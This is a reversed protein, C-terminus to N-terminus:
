RSLLTRTRVTYRLTDYPRGSTIRQIDRMEREARVNAQKVPPKGGLIGANRSALWGTQPVSPISTANALEDVGKAPLVVLPTLYVADGASTQARPASCGVVTGAGFLAVLVLVNRTTTRM